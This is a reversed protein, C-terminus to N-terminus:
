FSGNIVEPNRVAVENVESAIIEPIVGFAPCLGCGACKERQCTPTQQGKLALEVERRLFDKSVGFNLHEWPLVEDYDYRRNAYFAPDLGVRQFANCWREYLFYESWGDFRCGERWAEEIVRGLRRDGRALVAEIFSMEPESWRFVLNRGKLKERLGKQRQRLVAVEGQPEWQFVTHAKPVFSSVSVTVKLRASSIKQDIGVRLVRYALRAIEIVDEETETPLGLMFYLKVASWGAKFASSVAGLLDEETIGKNIVKRLRQSGAEPAFTLGARRVRQVEQALAVSFTDARLSPLSVNVGQKEFRDLLLRAVEKIRSYDASSLSILSIEDYGTSYVLKEAQSLLTAPTKERVPRYIIGAQCFRCGHACGRMIELMVRDHVIEIGPVIFRTPYSIQDFNTVVRRTVRAPLDDQVPKVAEIRGDPRYSVLYFSPVYIGAIKAARYLFQRRSYGERSMLSYLDLLEQIVEEGEGLVFLDIFDALPEPNCACPGGAIVLPDEDKREASSLPLGALDLMNLVNTYTMESQLTFAFLDFDRVPRYSELSYLPIKHKRMMEEMDPWPAFVREMLADDRSNVIHYLIQLGLHSMGIEYVDPFAFVVKVATEAWNKRIINWEGGVYRAPKQVKLLIKEIQKLM